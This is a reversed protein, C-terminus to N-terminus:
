PGFVEVELDDASNGAALWPKLYIARLEEETKVNGSEDVAPYVSITFGGANAFYLYVTDTSATFEQWLRIDAEITSKSPLDGWRMWEGRPADITDYYSIELSSNEGFKEGYKASDVIIARLELVTATIEDRDLDNALLVDLKAPAANTELVFAGADNVGDVERLENVLSLANRDLIDRESGACAAPGVAILLAGLVGSVTRVLMQRNGM